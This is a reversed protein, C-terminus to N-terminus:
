LYYFSKVLLSNKSSYKCIQLGPFVIFGGNKATKEFCNKQKNKNEQFHYNAHHVRIKKNAAHLGRWIYKIACLFSYFCPRLLEYDRCWEGQFIFTAGGAMIRNVCFALWWHSSLKKERSLWVKQSTKGLFWVFFQNWMRPPLENNQQYHDCHSGIICLSFNERGKYEAQKTVTVLFM